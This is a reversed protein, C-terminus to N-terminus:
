SQNDDASAKDRFQQASRLLTQVEEVSRAEAEVDGVKLKVKRGSRGQLWAVLVVGLAPGVVQALPILFEGVYSSGGGASKRVLVRPSVKIGEARLADDFTQLGAQFEPSYITSDDPAPLLFIHTDM